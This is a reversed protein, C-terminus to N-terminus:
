QEQTLDFWYNLRDNISTYLDWLRHEPSGEFEKRQEFEEKRDLFSHWLNAGVLMPTKKELLAVIFKFTLAFNPQAVNEIGHEDLLILLPHMTPKDASAAVAVFSCLSLVLIFRHM